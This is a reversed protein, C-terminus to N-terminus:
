TEVGTPAPAAIVESAVPPRSETRVAAPRPAPAGADFIPIPLGNGPLNVVPPAGPAPRADNRPLQAMPAAARPDRMSL